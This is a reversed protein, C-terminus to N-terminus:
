ICEVAEDDLEVAVSRQFLEVGVVLCRKQARREMVVGVLGALPGEIVRVRTGKEISQWPYYPRDGNVIRKIAEVEADAIPAPRGNGLLRLVRRVRIIQQFTAADLGTYVFIYGAFLPVTLYTKRDRRRSPITVRPLFIELGKRELAKEVEVEFRCQSQIVYWALEEPWGAGEGAMYDLERRDLELSSYNFQLSIEKLFEVDPCGKGQIHNM